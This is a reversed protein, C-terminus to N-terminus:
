RPLPLSALYPTGLLEGPERILCAAGSARLEEAERFGWLVGVPCMGARVACNMDVSTDGLYLVEEPKLGLEGAMELAAGPDPKVPVGERQGRVLDFLGEGFYTSIVGRTDADPKNSLVMTKLGRAKLARLLEPIGQYPRSKVDRHTEYYAQYAAHVRGAMDQRQAVARRSLVAAGNGVLYRYEDLPYERLGYERLAHNMACAIDELTNVLTGDLDFLVGRIM